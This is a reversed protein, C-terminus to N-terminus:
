KRYREWLIPSRRIFIDALYLLIALAILYVWVPSKTDLKEDVRFVEDSVPSVKGGTTDAILGLLEQNTGSFRYELPYGPFVTRSGAMDAMQETIQDSVVLAGSIAMNGLPLEIEYRGPAVQPMERIDEADSTRIRLNPILNNLFRGDFDLLTLSFRASAGNQSVDFFVTDSGLQKLSDRTLQAWFKGYGDWNMWDASWRNKVDSSFMFVKGLGYQWRTLLPSGDQTALVVEATDKEKVAIHGKLAPADAFAIGSLAQTPQKVVTLIQEEVLSTGVVKQTEETFIQPISEASLAMYNRGNGWDSIQKMLGPNGGEGITVTSIVINKERMREILREFEAPATDGDSLLIVHKTPAEVDKLLRYVIGLAPYINTQGSAQIRSILAEAKRKSKVPQLPVPVYPQSDFAVVGFQHQEELLDLSARAAEKAYEIKRGKMSYSRDIAIVLALEKKKEQAKFEAPLLEELISDSYGEEGFTNEGGAFVLGGGYDRVFSRIDKMSSVPLATALVDSLIVTDFRKLGDLSPLNNASGLEVEFGASELAAQLYKNTDEIGEVYLVKAKKEVWVGLKQANNELFEDGDMTIEVSLNVDGPTPFSATIVIENLGTQVQFKQTLINKEESALSLTLSGDRPSYLRALINVPEAARIRKPLRVSEIWADSVEISDAVMPFIKTNSRKAIDLVNVVSGDTENGDTFLVIRNAKNKGLSALSEDLASEINTGSQEIFNESLTNADAGSDLVSLTKAEDLDRVVASNKGFVVINSSAPKFKGQAGAIWSFAKEVYDPSVSRSVDVMYSVSVDDGGLRFNPQATALAILVLIAARMLTMIRKHRLAIALKSFRAVLWLIGILPILLLALPNDFTLIEVILNEVNNRLM